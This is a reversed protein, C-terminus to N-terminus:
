IVHSEHGSNYTRFMIIDGHRIYLGMSLNYGWAWYLLGISLNYGWAWYLLGM